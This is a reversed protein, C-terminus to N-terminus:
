GHSMGEVGSGGLSSQTLRRFHGVLVPIRSAWDNDVAYRRIAERDWDRGLADQLASALAAHDGFPVITGLSADNIVERNGGVDTAVVPTGCAM